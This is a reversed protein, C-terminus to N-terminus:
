ISIVYFVSIKINHHITINSSSSISLMDLITQEDFCEAVNILGLEYPWIPIVFILWQEQYLIAISANIWAPAMISRGTYTHTHTHTCNSWIRVSADIFYHVLKALEVTILTGDLYCIELTDMTWIMANSMYCPLGACQRSLTWGGANFGIM